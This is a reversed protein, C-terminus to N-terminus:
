AEVIRCMGSRVTSPMQDTRRDTRRDTQGDTMDWGTRKAGSVDDLQAGGAWGMAFVGCLCLNASFDDTRGGPRRDPRNEAAMVDDTTKQRIM